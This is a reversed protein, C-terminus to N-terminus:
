YESPLLLTTVSRDWETIIWIRVGKTIEYSSLIRNGSQLADDNLQADEVPVSGWDGSLHRQILAAASCNHKQMMELAGRTSVIQGPSFKVSGTDLVIVSPTSATETQNNLEAQTMIKKEL